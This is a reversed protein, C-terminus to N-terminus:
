SARQLPRLPIASLATFLAVAGLIVFMRTAPAGLAARQRAINLATRIWEVAALALFVQVAITAWRTRTLLLLPVCVVLVVVGISGSRFFHAALLLSSLILTIFKMHALM